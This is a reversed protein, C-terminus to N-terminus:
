CDHDICRWEAAFAIGGILRTGWAVRLESLCLEDFRNGALWLSSLAQTCRPLVDAIRRAFSSDMGCNTLRLERLVPLSPLAEILALWGYETVLSNEDLALTRLSTLRPLEAALSIMGDDIFGTRELELQQLTHPLSRALLATSGSGLVPNHSLSLRKLRGCVHGSCMTALIPELAIASTLECGNLCLDVIAPSEPPMVQLAAGLVRAGDDGLKLFDLNLTGPPRQEGYEEFGDKAALLATSIATLVRAREDEDAEYGSMGDRRPVQTRALCLGYAASGGVISRWARNVQACTSLFRLLDDHQTADLLIKALVGEHFGVFLDKFTIQQRYPTEISQGKSTYVDM